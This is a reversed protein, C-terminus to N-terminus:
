TSCFCHNPVMNELDSLPSHAAQRDSAIEEAFESAYALAANLLFPPLELLRAAKDTNGGCDQITEVALWVSLRIGRLYAM